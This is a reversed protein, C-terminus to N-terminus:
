RTSFIWTKFCWFIGELFISCSDIQQLQIDVLYTSLRRERFIYKSPNNFHESANRTSHYFDPGSSRGAVQRLDTRSNIGVHLNPALGRSKCKRSISVISTSAASECALELCTSSNFHLQECCSLELAAAMMSGQDVVEEAAAQM